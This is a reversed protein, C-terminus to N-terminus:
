PIVLFLQMSRIVLMWLGTSQLWLREVTDVVIRKGSYGM